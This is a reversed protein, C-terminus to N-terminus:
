VLGRENSLMVGSSVHMISLHLEKLFWLRPVSIWFWPVSDMNYVHYQLGDKLSLKRQPYIRRIWRSSVDYPRQMNKFVMSMCMSWADDYCAYKYYNRMYSQCAILSAVHMTPCCEHLVVDFGQMNEILCWEWLFIPHYLVRNSIWYTYICIMSYSALLLSIVQLIPFHSAFM